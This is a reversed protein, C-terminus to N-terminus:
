LSELQGEGVMRGGPLWLSTRSTKLRNRNQLHMQIMEKYIGSLLSTMCYKEETQSVASLIASELDM